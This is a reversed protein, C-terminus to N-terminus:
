KAQDLDNLREEVLSLRRDLGDIQIDQTKLRATTPVEWKRFEKLLKTELDYTAASIDQKISARLQVAQEALAIKLESLSIAQESMAHM